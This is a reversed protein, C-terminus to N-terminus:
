SGQPVPLGFEKLIADIKETKEALPSGPHLGAHRVTGDPAIIAVHPIGKVGYHPNFVNDESFAIRWTIDKAKIYYHMLEMERAPDGTVDIPTAELGHVRGQISTVGIVEVPMGKYYEVLERVKPFTAVCPGCWTAWFDLVIVKGKIASLTTLDGRDSWTFKIEPAAKGVLQSKTPATAPGLLRAVEAAIKTGAYKQAVEQALKNATVSDGLARQYLMAKANAVRAAAETKEPYKALLADIEAIEAALAKETREGAALKLKIRSEIAAFETTIDADASPRTQASATPLFAALALLALHAALRRSTLRTFSTNM